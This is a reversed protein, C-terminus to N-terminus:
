QLDVKSLDWLQVQNGCGVALKKGDPTFALSHHVNPPADSDLLAKRDGTAANWLRISGDGSSSALLTGDRSFAVATINKIHRLFTREKKNPVDWLHVLSDEAGSAITKGDLSFAVSGVPGIVPQDVVKFTALDREEAVNWLKVTFDWSGSALFKGDSSFAAASVQGKHGKLTARLKESPVDWLKIVDNGHCTAITKNDSSYAVSWVSFGGPEQGSLIAKETKKAVDMLQVIGGHSVTVVTKGDPSLAMSTIPEKHGPAIAFKLKAGALDWFRIEGNDAAAVLTKGEDTFTLSVVQGPHRFLMRGKPDPGEVEAFGGPMMPGLDPQGQEWRQQRVAQQDEAVMQEDVATAQASLASSRASMWFFAMGGFIVVVLGLVLLLGGGVLLLVLLLGSSSKKAPRRLPEDEEDPDFRRADASPMRSLAPKGAIAGQDPESHTRPSLTAESVPPSSPTFTMGCVPCLISKGSAQDPVRLAKQCGPCSISTPM